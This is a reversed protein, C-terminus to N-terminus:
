FLRLSWFDRAHYVDEAVGKSSDQSCGQSFVISGSCQPVGRRRANLVSTEATHWSLFEVCFQSPVSLSDLMPIVENSVEAPPQSGSVGRDAQEAPVTDTGTIDAGFGLFRGAGPVDGM